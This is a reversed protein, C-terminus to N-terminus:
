NSGGKRWPGKQFLPAFLDETPSVQFSDPSKRREGPRIHPASRIVALPTQEKGEGMVLVAAAALADAINTQEIMFGRGFIDKTRRYDYLPEFGAWALAFGIAGRRLPTSRSDTIICGLNKRRYEKKFWSLLSRATERPNEPWLVYHDDANSADIGASAILMNEKLTLIARQGPVYRRDIFREAEQKILADKDPVDAVPVCRGQWISIVKSTVAIIDHEELTLASTRIHALLDDKPPRVIGTKIPVITM